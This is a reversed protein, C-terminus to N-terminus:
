EAVGPFNMMQSPTYSNGIATNGSKTGTGLISTLNSLGGFINMFGNNATQTNAGAKMGLLQLMKQYPALKNYQFALRDDAAKMQTAGALQNFRQNQQNEAQVGANLSADNGLGVLKNVGGLVSRRDGLASLGAAQGRGINQQQLRYLASSYPSTNARNLAANYYSSISPNADYVPTQLQELQQQAKKAKRGGFISQFLGGVGQLIAPAAALLSLPM